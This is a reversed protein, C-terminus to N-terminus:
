TMNVGGKFTRNEDRKRRETLVRYRQTKNMSESM